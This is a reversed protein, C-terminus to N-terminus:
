EENISSCDEEELMDVLQFKRITNFSPLQKIYRNEDIQKKIFDYVVQKQASLGPFGKKSHYPAIDQV